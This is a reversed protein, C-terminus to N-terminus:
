DNLIESAIKEMDAEWLSKPAKIIKTEGSAGNHDAILQNYQQMYDAIIKAAQKQTVDPNFRIENQLAFLKGRAKKTQDESLHKDDINSIYTDLDKWTKYFPLASIDTRINSGIISYLVYDGDHYHVSDKLSNGYYLKNGKVFFNDEDYKQEPENILVTYGPQLNGEMKFEERVGVLPKVDDSDTISEIGDTIINAIKLYGSVISGFENGYTKSANELIKLIKRLYNEVPLRCLVISVALTGGIYPIKGAVTTNNYIMGGEEPVKKIKDYIMSPGVVFPVSVKAGDYLFESVTLVMPDFTSLWKRKYSLYMENVVVEFYNENEVLPQALDEERDTHDAKIRIYTPRFSPSEAIKNWFSVISM